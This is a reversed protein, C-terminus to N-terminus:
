RNVRCHFLLSLRAPVCSTSMIIYQDLAHIRHNFAGRGVHPCMCSFLFLYARKRSFARNPGILQMCQVSLCHGGENKAAILACRTYYM